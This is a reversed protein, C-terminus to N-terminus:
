LRWVCLAIQSFHPALPPHTAETLATAPPREAAEIVACFAISLSLVDRLESIPSRPTPANFPAPRASCNCATRFVREPSARVIREESEGSAVEAFSDIRKTSTIKVSGRNSRACCSDDEDAPPTKSCCSCESTESQVKCCGCGQCTFETGGVASCDPQYGHVFAPQM